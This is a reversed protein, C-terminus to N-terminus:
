YFTFWDINFLTKNVEGKFILYVAHKGDSPVISTEDIQFHINENKNEINVEAIKKGQISDIRVEIVGGNAAYTKFKIKSLKNNFNIYKYVATDGNKIESLEETSEDFENKTSIFTNGTLGCAWEAEIIRTAKLPQSAGQTTMEVEDITGDKNIKIPEICAKRFKRSNNTSRHYFVYWKGNFEEISGHNNWVSPDSGYNDIIVGQYVFPGTPSDSIAYGLCTPRNRRSEDAFVFYYKDGIKRISSGEHFYKNGLSDLPKTITSADIELLNPKLKAMKPNMQGWYLYGQGDDDILVAPDIEDVGQIRKGKKFPGNPSNSIAVGTEKTKTKGKPSCYYLYYKGNKFICDPAFLLKDNYLVQDNKGKSAFVNKDLKWDILNETSLVHYGHSCWYADSEDRSGYIYLRGDQWVHAEPDAIFVGAPVIPNQALFRLSFTFFFFLQISKLFM